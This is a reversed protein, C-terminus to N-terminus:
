EEETTPAPAAAPESSEVANTGTANEITFNCDIIRMGLPNIMLESEKSPPKVELQFLGVYNKRKVNTNQGNLSYEDEYWRVQYTNKTGPMLQMTKIEPQITVKGLKSAPKEKGVLTTYKSYADKSCFHEANQWNNKFAVPDLPITRTDMIFKMLFHKLEAQQPTYNTAKLEGGTEIAGTANDVRVVYTKYSLTSITFVSAVFCLAMLGMYIKNRQVAQDRLFAFNRLDDGFKSKRKPLVDTPNGKPTHMHEPEM